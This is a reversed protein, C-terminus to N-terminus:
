ETYDDPYQKAPINIESGPYGPTQNIRGLTNANIVEAPIPWLVHQPSIKYRSGNKNLVHERYFHSKEIVRDYFFNDSSFRESSYTKGNYAMGTKVFLYSIRTLECKRPEEFYLEKAREDLITGINIETEPIPDCGARQHVENIDRAALALNGKWFYAEARLLYTEAIRFVYWDSHYGNPQARPDPVMFKNSFPSWCRISDPGTDQSVVHQGYYKENETGILASNNYVLDEMRWWNPQKHRLDKDEKWMDYNSYNNTRLFGAGRGIYRYMGLDDFAQIMGGAGTPTKVVGVRSWYPTCNRMTVIEDAAGQMDARDIFCFLTEKNEASSKNEWHHLDYIVDLPVSGGNAYAQFGETLHTVNRYVGFRTKMLSHIGDNIVADAASIAGDFDGLALSIKALLHNGAAKNIRGFPCNDPLWNVAQKMDEQMKKLISERSFSYFDMRPSTIENLILPVDGFQHVLRYYCFARYFYTEGLVTNRETDSTFQAEDMRNIIMNTYKIINYWATWYPRIKIDKNLGAEQDPLVTVDLDIPINDDDGGFIAIDSFVFEAAFMAMHNYYEDRLVKNCTALLGDMGNKDLLSNEPSYFSLPEPKLFDESCGSTCLILAIYIALFRYRM